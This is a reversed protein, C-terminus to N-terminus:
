QNRAYGLFSPYAHEILLFDRSKLSPKLVVFFKGVTYTAATELPGVFGTDPLTEKKLKNVQERSLAFFGSHPNEPVDFEIVQGGRFHGSAANKLPQHWAQIPEIDIPGDILLRSPVGPSRTLEYRHPMLLCAHDSTQAMWLIKEPFLPDHIVLDDELYINLDAPVPHSILWDRAFLGIKRPDEVDSVLVKALPFVSEVVESLFQNSFVVVVIEVTIEPFGADLGASPTLEPKVTILNLHWDQVTRRLNLLGNLCRQFAAARQWRASCHRSGFGEGIVGSSSSSAETFFHPIVARINLPRGTM